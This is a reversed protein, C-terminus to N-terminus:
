SHWDAARQNTPQVSFDSLTAPCFGPSGEEKGHNLLGV